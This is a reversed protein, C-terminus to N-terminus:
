TISLIMTARLCNFAIYCFIKFYYFDKSKLFIAIFYIM